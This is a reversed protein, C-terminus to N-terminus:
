LVAALLVVIVTGLVSLEKITWCDSSLSMVSNVFCETHVGPLDYCLSLVLNYSAFVIRSGGRLINKFFVWFSIVLECIDECSTLIFNMTKLYLCLFLCVCLLITNVVDLVCYFKVSLQFLLFNTGPILPLPFCTSTTWCTFIWSYLMFLNWLYASCSLVISLIITNHM